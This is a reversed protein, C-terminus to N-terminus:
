NKPQGFVSVNKYDSPIKFKFLNREIRNNLELSTTNLSDVINGKNDYSEWKLIIGTPRNIWMKFSTIYRNDPLKRKITGKVVIAKYGFMEENQNVIDWNQNVILYSQVIEWQFLSLFAATEPRSRSNYTTHEPGIGKGDTVVVQDLQIPGGKRYITKYQEYENRAPFITTILHNNSYEIISGKKDQNNTEKSYSKYNDGNMEIGYSITSKNGLEMYTFSGKATTFYDVTNMMRYELTKKTLQGPDKVPAYNQSTPTSNKPTVSHTKTAALKESSLKHNVVVIRYTLFLLGVCVMIGLIGTMRRKFLFFPNSGTSKGRPKVGNLVKEISKERDYSLNNFVTQDMSRKLDKLRDDM